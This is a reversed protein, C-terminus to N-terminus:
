RDGHKTQSDVRGRASGNIPALTFTASPTQGRWDLLYGAQHEVVVEGDKFLWRLVPSRSLACIKNHALPLVGPFEVDVHHWSLTKLGASMLRQWTLEDGSAARVGRSLGPDESGSSLGDACKSKLKDVRRTSEPHISSRGAHHREDAIRPARRRGDGLTDGTASRLLGLNSLFNRTRGVVHLRRKKKKENKEVGPSFCASVASVASVGGGSPNSGAVGGDGPARNEGDTNSTSTSTSTSEGAAAAAAEQEEDMKQQKRDRLRTVAHPDLAATEYSM